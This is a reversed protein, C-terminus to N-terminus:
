RIAQPLTLHTGLDELYDMSHFNLFGGGPTFTMEGFVPKGEIEYWDVRVFPIGKSLISSYEIMKDLSKPKPYVKNTRYKPLTKEPMYQWDLSYTSYHVSEGFERDSCFFVSHVKGDFCYFKYDLLSTEGPEPQLYKEAIILPTIEKYHPEYWRYGIKQKLWANLLEVVKKTDLEAKLKIIIVNNGGGGNNTKLVFQEPLKEFDIEDANEYTGYLENLTSGLGKEEVYKRVEYKDACRTWSKMDAHLKMWAIKECINNPTDLNIEKHFVTKYWVRILKEPFYHGLFSYYSERIRHLSTFFLPFHTKVFARM